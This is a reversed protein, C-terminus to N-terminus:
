RPDLMCASGATDVGACTAPSGAVSHPGQKAPGSEGQGTGKGGSGGGVTAYWLGQESAERTSHSQGVEWPRVDGDHERLIGPASWLVVTALWPIERRGRSTSRHACPTESRAPDPRVERRCLPVGSTAGRRDQYRLCGSTNPDIERSWVRSADAGTLAEGTGKRVGACSEPDPYTALGERYQVEV